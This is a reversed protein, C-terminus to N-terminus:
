REPPQCRVVAEAVFRPNAVPPCLLRDALLWNAPWADGDTPRGPRPDYGLASADPPSANPVGSGSPPREQALALAASAETTAISARRQTPVRRLDRVRDVAQRSPRRAAEAGHKQLVRPRTM